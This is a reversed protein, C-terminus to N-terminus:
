SYKINIFKYTFNSLDGPVEPISFLVTKTNKEDVPQFYETYVIENNENISDPIKVTIPYIKEENGGIKIWARFRIKNRNSNLNDIFSTDSDGNNTTGEIQGESNFVNAVPMIEFQCVFNSDGFTKDDVNKMDIEYHIINGNFNGDLYHSSWLKMQGNDACYLSSYEYKDSSDKLGYDGYVIGESQADEGSTGGPKWTLSNGKKGIIYM